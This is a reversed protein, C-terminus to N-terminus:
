THGSSFGSKFDLIVHREQVQGDTLNFVEVGGVFDVNRQDEHCREISVVICQADDLFVRILLETDGGEVLRTIWTDQLLTKKGCWRCSRTILVLPVGGTM